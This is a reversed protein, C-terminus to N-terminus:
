IKESVYYDHTKKNEANMIKYSKIINRYSKVAIVPLTALVACAIAPLIYGGEKYSECSIGTFIAAGLPNLILELTSFTFRGMAETFREDAEIEKNTINM